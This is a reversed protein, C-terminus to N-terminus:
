TNITDGYLNIEVFSVSLPIFLDGNPLQRVDSTSARGSYWVVNGSNDVIVLYAGGTNQNILRFLTYGPEMKDPQNTLLTLKPFTSPLPDTILILPQANTAANQSKDLVTVTLYNTRGPKFGYLPITHTTAYDYFHRIWRESSNTMTVTVRSPVDTSVSLKAALPAIGSRTVSIGPLFAVAHLLFPILTLGFILVLSPCFPSRSGLVPRSVSIYMM